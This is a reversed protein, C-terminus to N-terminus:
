ASWVVLTNADMIYVKDGKEINVKEGVELQQGSMTAAAPTILIMSSPRELNKLVTIPVTVVVLRWEETGMRDNIDKRLDPPIKDKRTYERIRGIDKTDEPEEDKAWATLKSAFPPVPAKSGLDTQSQAM